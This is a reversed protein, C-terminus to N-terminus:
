RVERFESPAYGCMIAAYKEDSVQQLDGASRQLSARARACALCQRHGRELAWAVLNPKKLLHGQPCQTKTSSPHPKLGRERRKQRRWASSSDNTCKRCRRTFRQRGDPLGYVVPVTNETTFEHGNRCHTWEKSQQRRSNEELTLLQLHEPNVCPPNFCVHDVTLGDPIEGNHLEYSYRHAKQGGPYNFIGYERAGRGGTWIWCTDTKEVRRWFRQELPQRYPSPGVEALPDGYVHWRSYHIRCWGRAVIPTSCGLVSCQTKM